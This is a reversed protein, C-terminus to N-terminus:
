TETDWELYCIDWNAFPDGLILNIVSVSISSSLINATFYRSIIHAKNM